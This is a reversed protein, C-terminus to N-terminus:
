ALYFHPNPFSVASIVTNVPDCISQCQPPVQPIGTGGGTQRAALSARQGLDIRVLFNSLGQAQGTPVAMMMGSAVVSLYSYLLFARHPM